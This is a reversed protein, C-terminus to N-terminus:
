AIRGRHEYYIEKGCDPNTCTDSRKYDYHGPFLWEPKMPFGCDPCDRRTPKENSPRFFADYITRKLSEQDKRIMEAIEPDVNDESPLQKKKKFVLNNQLFKKVKKM